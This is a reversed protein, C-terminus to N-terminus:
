APGTTLDRCLHIATERGQYYHPIRRTEHFDLTRYFALADTNGARVELHVRYIGAVRAPRLLWELLRRGLGRRQYTPTVALLLLHADEIRYHMIGFGAITQRDRAILVNSEPAKIQQRIQPTRWRWDLGTEILERSLRAIVDANDPRALGLEITHPM